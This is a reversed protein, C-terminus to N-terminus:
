DITVDFEVTQTGAAATLDGFRVVVRPVTGSSDLEGADDAVADTLPAGNLTLSNGVYTTSAPIADEVSANAATGSDTVEVSITYTITAGPVPSSGGFPDLVTAAKLIAVTVESVIYEGVARASAGGAGVVADVGGSGAGPVVTGAAGSATVATALLASRGIDGNALGAPIDNVVIVVISEGPNLLPDNAGPSYPTDAVSFDGSADSDFYMAPVQGVPDFDDATDANDVDLRFAEPGNGTNTVSFVLGAGTDGAAVAVQPSQLVLAVDLVEAVTIVVANSSQTLETGDVEYRVEATNSIDTGAPTGDAVALRIGSLWLAAGIFVANRISPIARPWSTPM